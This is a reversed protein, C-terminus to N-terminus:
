AFIVRTNFTQTYGQEDGTCQQILFTGLELENKKAKELADEITDSSCIVNQDKIVLFKDPYKLYLEKQHNKYYSFENELM